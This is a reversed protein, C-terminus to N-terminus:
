NPAVLTQFISSLKMSNKKNLHNNYIYYNALVKKGYKRTESYSILEMSLFPEYKKTLDKFRGRKFQGRTYGAGGNYAYAIFLPNNGFQKKLVDLHRNAYILNKEPIFQEYINYSENYESAISESLFPMIQMIGQATAFSISSPIFKSEQRAISYILVQNYLDFKEIIDSYPTIFYQNKFKNYKEVIYTFHPLTDKSSFLEKYKNFKDDDVFNTDKLIKIWEFNNTIDYNSKKNLIPVDYYINEIKIGLIEKAYLSYINNDNSQSLNELFIKNNTILYEWFIIKDKDMQTYAKSNAYKLYKLSENKKNYKIANIALFFLTEHELLKNNEINFLSKHIYNYKDNPIVFRVFKNFDKDISLKTIFDNPYNKNFEKLRYKENSDFFLRYFRHNPSDLLLTFVNNSAIVKFDDRLTPYEYVREIAIKLDKKSLTTAESITLGLALCRNDENFLSKEDLRYCKIDEIPLTSVINEYAKKVRGNKNRAMNFAYTADKEDINKQNLYQIIFFDKSYSTPKEELWELTVKFNKDTINVVESNAFTNLVFICSLSTIIKKM